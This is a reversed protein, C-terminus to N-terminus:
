VRKACVPGLGTAISEPVTLERGCAGCNGSHWLELEDPMEEAAFKNIAWNLARYSDATPLGKKGAVLGVKQPIIYGIYRYDSQNCPGDLVRVFLLPNDDKHRKKAARIHYTFRKSTKKSVLTFKANGGYVFNFANTANEIISEM